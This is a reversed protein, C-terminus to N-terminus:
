IISTLKSQMIKDNGLRVIPPTGLGVTHLLTRCISLLVYLIDCQGSTPAM